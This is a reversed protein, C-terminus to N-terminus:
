LLITPAVHWKCCLSNNAAFVIGKAKSATFELVRWVLHCSMLIVFFCGAGLGGVLMYHNPSSGFGRGEWQDSGKFTCYIHSCSKRMKSCRIRGSELLNAFKIFIKLDFLEFGTELGSTSRCSRSLIRIWCFSASRVPYPVTSSLPLIKSYCHYFIKVFWIAFAFLCINLLYDRNMLLIVNREM